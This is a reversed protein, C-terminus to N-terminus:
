SDAIRKDYELTSTAAFCSETRDMRARKQHPPTDISEVVEVCVGVDTNM